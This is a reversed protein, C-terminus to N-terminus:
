GYAGVQKIKLFNITLDHFWLEVVLLIFFSPHFVLVNLNHIFMGGNPHFIEGFILFFFRPFDLFLPFFFLCM